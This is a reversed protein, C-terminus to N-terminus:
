EKFNEYRGGSTVPICAVIAVGDNSKCSLGISTIMGTKDTDHEGPPNLIRAQGNGAHAYRSDDLRTESVLVDGRFHRKAPFVDKEDCGRSCEDVAGVAQQAVFRDFLVWVSRLPNGDGFPSPFGGDGEIVTDVAFVGKFDRGFAKVICQMGDDSTHQVARTDGVRVLLDGLGVLEAFEGQYESACADYFVHSFRNPILIELLEM